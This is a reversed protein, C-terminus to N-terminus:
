VGRPATRRCACSVLGASFPRRAGCLSGRGLLLVLFEIGILMFGMGISSFLIWRPMDISRIDIEGGLFSAYGTKFGYASLLLSVAACSLYIARELIPRITSPTLNFFSTVVVHGRSRVLWPSALMAVFLLSYESVGSTSQPPQLGFARLVVDYAVLAAIGCLIAGALQALGRLLLIYLSTLRATRM